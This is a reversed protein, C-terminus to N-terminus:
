QDLENHLRGSAGAAEQLHQIMQWSYPPTGPPDPYGQREHHEWARLWREFAKLVDEKHKLQLRLSLNEQELGVNETRISELERELNDVRATLGQILTKLAESQSEISSSKEEAKSKRRVGLYTLFASVALASAGLAGQLWTPWGSSPPTVVSALFSELLM